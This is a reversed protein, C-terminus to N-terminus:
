TSWSSMVRQRRRPRARSAALNATRVEGTLIPRLAALNEIIFVFLARVRPARRMERHMLLYFGTTLDPVPGLVRVLGREADGLVVPLAALGVGSKM